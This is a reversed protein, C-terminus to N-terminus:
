KTSSPAKSSKDLLAARGHGRRVEFHVRSVKLWNRNEQNGEFLRQDIIVDAERGVTVRGEKLSVLKPDLLSSSTLFPVLWGWVEDREEEEQEQSALKEELPQTDAEGM